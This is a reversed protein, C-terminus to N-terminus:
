TPRWQAQRPVTRFWWVAAIGLAVLFLLVGGTWGRAYDEGTGLLAGFLAPSVLLGGYYGSVVLGSARATSWDGKRRLAAVMALSNWAATTTGFLIAAPWLVWAGLGEAAVVMGLAAASCMAIIAFFAPTREVPSRDIHRAWVLRAVIGVAGISALLLGAQIEPMSVASVAYLPLYATVAAYGAGTFFGYSVLWRVDPHKWVSGSRVGAAEPAAVVPPVVYLAVVLAVLVLGAFALVALRWSVLSAVAPVVAGALLASLQVGSQKAGIITGRREAGVREGIVENTAPNSFSLALGALLVAILLLVYSRALSFVTFSVASAVFVLLLARRSGMRDTLGGAVWSGVTAVVFFASTLLGMSAVSVDLDQVVFPGIAGLTFQMLSGATMAVTLVGAVTWLRLGSLDASRPEARTM